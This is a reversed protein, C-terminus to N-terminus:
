KIRGAPRAHKFYEVQKLRKVAAKHSLGPKSLRKGGHSRVEFGGGKSKRIM